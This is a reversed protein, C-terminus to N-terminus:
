VPLGLLEMTRRVCANANEAFGDAGVADCYAQSVPAGGVMVKVNERLGAETLKEITSRFVPMTTTLFASMG